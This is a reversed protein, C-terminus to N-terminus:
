QVQAGIPGIHDNWGGVNVQFHDLPGADFVDENRDHSQGVANHSDEVAIVLRQTRNGLTWLGFVTPFTSGWGTRNVSYICVTDNCNVFRPTHIATNNYLFQNLINKVSVPHTHGIRQLGFFFGSALRGFTWRILRAPFSTAITPSSPM